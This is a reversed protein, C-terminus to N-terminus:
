LFMIPNGRNKGLGPRCNEDQPGGAEQGAAWWAAGGESEKQKQKIESFLDSARQVQLPEASLVSFLQAAPDLPEHVASPASIISDPPGTSGPAGVLGDRTRPGEATQPGEKNRWTQPPLTNGTKEEM